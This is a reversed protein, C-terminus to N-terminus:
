LVLDTRGTQNRVGVRSAELKGRQVRQSDVVLDHSRALVGDGGRSARREPSDCEGEDRDLRERDMPSNVSEEGGLRNHCVILRYKYPPEQAKKRLEPETSDM